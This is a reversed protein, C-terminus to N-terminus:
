WVAPEVASPFKELMKGLLPLPFAKDIALVKEMAVTVDRSSPNGIAITTKFQSHLQKCLRTANRQEDALQSPQIKNMMVLMGTAALYLLTSTMKLSLLAAGDASSTAAIGVM